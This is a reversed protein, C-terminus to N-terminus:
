RNYERWGRQWEIRFKHSQVTGECVGEYYQGSLGMQYAFNPNCYEQIGKLYGREYEHQQASGLQNLVKYSRQWNGAVGDNYGIQYWNGQAALQDDGAACGFLALLLLVIIWQKM